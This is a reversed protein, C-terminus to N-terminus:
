PVGRDTPAGGPRFVWIADASSTRFLAAGGAAPAPMTVAELDLAPRELAEWTLGGDRSVSWNFLSGSDARRVLGILQTGARLLALSGCYEYQRGSPPLVEDWSAGGDGTHLVRCTGSAPTTGSNFMLLGVGDTAFTPSLAVSPGSSDPWAGTLRHVPAWSTGRDSSRFLAGSSLASGGPHPGYGFAFLTGDQPYTPSVALQQVLRYPEGDLELGASAPTWSDGGDTSIVVGVSLEHANDPRAPLNARPLLQFDAVAAFLTRDQGFAPSFVAQVVGQGPAPDLVQWSVGGDRSRYLHADTSRRNLEGNRVHLLALGDRAFDPSLSLTAETQIYPAPLTLVEHWSAGGDTSRYLTQNDLGEVIGPGVERLPRVLELATRTAGVAPALARAQLSVRGETPRAIREWTTGGDPSRWGGALLLRDAPWQPSVTVTGIREGEPPGLRQWEVAVQRPPAAAGGVPTALLLLLGLVASTGRSYRM